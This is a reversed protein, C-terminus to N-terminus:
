SIKLKKFLIWKLETIRENKLCTKLKFTIYIHYTTLTFRIEDATQLYWYSIYSTDNNDVLWHKLLCWVICVAVVNKMNQQRKVFELQINLLLNDTLIHWKFIWLVIGVIKLTSLIFILQFKSLFFIFHIQNCRWISFCKFIKTKRSLFRKSIRLFFYGFTNCVFEENQQNFLFFFQNSYMTMANKVLQFEM